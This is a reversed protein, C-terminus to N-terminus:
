INLPKSYIFAIIQNYIQHTKFIRNFQERTAPYNEDIIKSAFNIITMRKNEILISLTVENNEDLKKNLERM